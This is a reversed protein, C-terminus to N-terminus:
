SRKGFQSILERIRSLHHHDHEAQFYIMDCVRMQRGLRPHMASKEFDGPDLEELRRVLEERRRRFDALVDSIDSENYRAEVTRRNTMEAPRLVNSNARYDDLRGLFLSETSLLHGANEQISWNDGDKRVLLERPLSSVLRDLEEPTNRLREILGASETVPFDFDFERDVWKM